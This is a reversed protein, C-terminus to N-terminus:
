IREQVSPMPKTKPRGPAVRHVSGTCADNPPTSKKPDFQTGRMQLESRSTVEFIQFLRAVHARVTFHSIGLERGIAKNTLGRTLGSLVEVQRSTLRLRGDTVSPVRRVVLDPLLIVESAARRIAALAVEDSDDIFVLMARTNTRCAEDVPGRHDGESAALRDTKM